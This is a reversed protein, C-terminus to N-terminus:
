WADVLLAQLHIESVCAVHDFAIWNLFRSSSSSAHHKIKGRVSSLFNSHRLVVAKSNGTSGSTLMFSVIGDSQPQYEPYVHLPTPRQEISSTQLDSWSIAEFSSVLSKVISITIDSSILIPRNFLTQLHNLFLTRRSPEPHLPPIPCLPIGALLSSHIDRLFRIFLSVLAVLGSSFSITM